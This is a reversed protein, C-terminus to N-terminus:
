WFVRLKFILIQPFSVTRFPDLLPSEGDSFPYGRLYKLLPKNCGSVYCVPELDKDLEKMRWKLYKKIVEPIKEPEPSEPPDTAPGPDQALVVFKEPIITHTLDKEPEPNKQSPSDPVLNIEPSSDKAPESNKVPEPNKATKAYKEIIVAPKKAPKIDTDLHEPLVSSKGAEGRPKRGPKKKVGPVPEAKKVVGSVPLAIVKGSNELVKGDRDLEIIGDDLVRFFRWAGHPTRLWLERSVGPTSVIFRLLTIEAAFDHLIDEPTVTLRDLRKV